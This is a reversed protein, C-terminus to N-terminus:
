SVERSSVVLEQALIAPALTAVPSFMSDLTHVSGQMVVAFCHKWKSVSEENVIKQDASLVDAFRKKAHPARDIRAGPQRRWHARVVKTM